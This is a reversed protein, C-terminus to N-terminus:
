MKGSIEATKSGTANAVMTFRMEETKGDTVSMKGETMYM